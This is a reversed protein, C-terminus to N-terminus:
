YSRRSKNISSRAFDKAQEPELELIANRLWSGIAVGNIYVGQQRAKALSEESIGGAIQVFLNKPKAEAFSNLINKANDIAKQDRSKTAIRAGSQPIGDVQIIIIREDVGSRQYVQELIINKAEILEADSFLESGISFSEVLVNELDIKQYFDKFAQFDRSLHIEFANAGMGLLRNLEKSNAHYSFRKPKLFYNSTSQSLYHNTLFHIM